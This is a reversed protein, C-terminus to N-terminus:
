KITLNMGSSPAIGEKASDGNLRNLQDLFYIERQLFLLQPYRIQRKEGTAPDFTNVLRIEHLVVAIYWAPRYLYRISYIGGTGQAQNFQPRHDTLWQINGNLINFDVGQLYENGFSDVVYEVRSIPFMPRDIGTPSCELKEWKPVVITEDALELRDDQYFFIHDCPERSTGIYYRPVHLTTMSSDIIGEAKYHKKTQNNDFVGLFCRGEKYYFGNSCTHDLHTSRMSGKDIDGGTCPIAKYHKFLTGHDEIFNDFANADFHVEDQSFINPVDNYGGRSAM